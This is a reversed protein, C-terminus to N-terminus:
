ASPPWSTSRAPDSIIGLLGAAVAPRWGCDVLVIRARNRLVWFYCAMELLREEFGGYAAFLRSAPLDHFAAHRLAYVEYSDGAPM